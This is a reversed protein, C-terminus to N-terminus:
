LPADTDVLRGYPFHPFLPNKASLGFSIPLTMDSPLYATVAYGPFGLDSNILYAGTLGFIHAALTAGLDGLGKAHVNRGWEHEM